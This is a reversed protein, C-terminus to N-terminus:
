PDSVIMMYCNEALASESAYSANNSQSTTKRPEQPNSALEGVAQIIKEAWKLRSPSEDLVIDDVVMGNDSIDSFVSCLDDSVEDIHQPSSCEGPALEFDPIPEEEFQVSREVFTKLTSTDFHKYCKTDEGYGVM